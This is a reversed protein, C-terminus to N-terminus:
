RYYWPAAYPYGPAGYFCPCPYPPGYPSNCYCTQGYYGDNVVAATGLSGLTLGAFFSGASSGRGAQAFPTTAILISCTILISILKNTKM